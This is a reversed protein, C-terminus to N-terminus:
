PKQEHNKSMLFEGLQWDFITDLDISRTKPMIYSLTENTVFTENQIVWDTKGWYLAGNLCYAKPLDQRQINSSGKVLPILHSSKNLRFSWYPHKQAETVSVIASAKKLKGLRIINKIDGATRLPSTPQLILVEDYGPVKKLVDLVPVIGPTKDQSIEDPRMFPIEAGYNQAVDAIEKDDTSVVLRDILSVRRAVEITWAILPKGNFNKLNKRKIGKSGGRAPIIGILSM